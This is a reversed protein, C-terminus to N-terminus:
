GAGEGRGDGLGGYASGGFGLRGIGVVEQGGTIGSAERGGPVPGYIIKM